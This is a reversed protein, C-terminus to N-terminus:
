AARAPTAFREALPGPPCALACTFGRAGLGTALVELVREAGAVQGTHNVFAIKLAWRM